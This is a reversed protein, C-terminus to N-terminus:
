HSLGETRQERVLSQQIASVLMQATEPNLTIACLADTADRLLIITQKGDPSVVIKAIDDMIFADIRTPKTM